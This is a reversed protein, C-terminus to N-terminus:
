ADLYDRRYTENVLTMALVTVPSALALGVLGFVAGFFFQVGILLAPPLSVREQQIRPTILYSELAQVVVYVATVLVVTTTGQSTALLIAPAAALVPGINPIFTLLGAILGFLLSLPLGILWLGLWTLAAVISMSMLQAVLWQQLKEVCQDLVEGARPRVEPGFLALTGRRYTGPDVAGYLGIFLVIVLIGLAGFTSTIATRAASSGTSLLPGPAVRGMLSTVGEYHDIRSRLATVAGSLDRTLQNVQELLVPLAALMIITFLLALGLVFAAIGWGRAIGARRAVWNGGASIFIGFLIGALIVFIVDPASLFLVLLVLAFVAVSVQGRTPRWRDANESLHGTM